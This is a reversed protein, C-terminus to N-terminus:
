LIRHRSKLKKYDGSKESKIFLYGHAHAHVKLLVYISKSGGEAPAHCDGDRDGDAKFLDDVYV